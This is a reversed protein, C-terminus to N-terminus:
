RIEAMWNLVVTIPPVTSGEASTVFLFRQDDPTLTWARTMDAHLSSLNILERPTGAEVKAGVRVDVDMLKGLALDYYYLGSGDKRWRPMSGSNTSIMWKAGSAPAGPVLAQIYFQSRGTENSSYALWKGDPSIGKLVSETFQTKLWPFPKRDGEVPLM